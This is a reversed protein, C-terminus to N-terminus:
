QEITKQATPNNFWTPNQLGNTQSFAEFSPYANLLDVKEIPHAWADGIKLAWPLGNDTQYYLSKDPDSYDDGTTLLSDDFAETPAQNKLHVEWGRTNGNSIHPGHYHGAAAFIFPDLLGSPANAQAIPTILPLRVRFYVKNIDRCNTQVRFYECGAPLVVHDWVDPVIMIIAEDRGTEVPNTNQLQNAVEYHIKDTDINSADVGQLRVAFGNHYSAGVGTIEGEVQYSIVQDEKVYTKTRYNLVLDNFDFDGKQPWFDEYALTVWDVGGPYAQVSVGNSTVDILYDEVEGNDVGGTASMESEASVRFRVWTQGVVASIPVNITSINTGAIVPAAEIAQENEDFTGSHDWDVWANLFGEASASTIVITELGTEFGTVFAVGDDDDDVNPIAEGSVATGLYLGNLDLAHRAGNDDLSTGYSSPADGYDISTDDDDVLPATACRAGDNSSSSPGYAFLEATPSSESVNIRFVYGDSNRSIYFKGSADFYVAGFTGSQGVNGLLQSSGTTPDLQHLDGNSDVSYLLGTLPHFAFDYIRLDLAAGNIIQTAQKYTPDESDLSIRYLGYSAGRRYAYYANDSVAVDGVYFSINPLGTIGDIPLVQYDRGIKVLTNAEYGFGYLFRDHVSFGIANVKGSTNMQSSLTQSNGTALNVGFLNAKSQQILFAKSPCTAFPEAIANFTSLFILGM